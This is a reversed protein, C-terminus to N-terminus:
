SNISNEGSHSNVNKSGRLNISKETSHLFVEQAMEKIEKSETEKSGKIWEFMKGAVNVMFDIDITLFKSGKIKESYDGEVTNVKNNGVTTNMNLGANINIDEGATLTINKPAEFNINGKGDMFYKNGSPDEILVSGDADNLIIIIGSRTRFAKLDNNPTSYGSKEKKSTMTGIVIPLEANNGQFDVFVTDGIEPVVHSGRADGGYKQLLPIFPTTEGKDQQWPMQVQVGSLGDPDNTATVVATQSKCYPVLDPNTKPSFVSGSFNVATFHNEYDGGDDCTHVVKTVMYFTELWKDVGTIKVSSGVCVGPVESTGTIQMMKTMSARMKNKSYEELNIQARGEVPNQNLQITTEKSFVQNSKNIYNQHAGDTEKRYDITNNSLIKGSRNDNELVKYLSPIVKMRYDFDYMNVGYFLKPSVEGGPSGITLKRGDDYFWQGYRKAM